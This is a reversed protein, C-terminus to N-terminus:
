TDAARKQKSWLCVRSERSTPPTLATSPWCSRTTATCRLSSRISPGAVHGQRRQQRVSSPLRSARLLRLRCVSLPRRQSASLSGLCGCSLRDRTRAAGARVRVTQLISQLRGPLSFRGASGAQGFLGLCGLALSCAWPHRAALGGAAGVSDRQWRM